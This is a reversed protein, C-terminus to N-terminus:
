SSLDSPYIASASGKSFRGTFPLVEFAIRKAQDLSLSKGRMALRETINSPSPQLMDNLLDVVCDNIETLSVDSPLIKDDIASLILKNFQDENACNSGEESLIYHQSPKIVLDAKILFGLYDDIRSSSVFRGDENSLIFSSQTGIANMLEARNLPADKLLNLIEFVRGYITRSSAFKNRGTPVLAPAARLIDQSLEGFIHPLSQEDLGDLQMMRARTVEYVRKFTIAEKSRDVRQDARHPERQLVEILRNSFNADFSYSTGSSTILLCEGQFNAVTEGTRGAHCTDLFLVLNKIGHQTLTQLIYNLSVFKPSGRPNEQLSIKLDNQEHSISHGIFYIIVTTDATYDDDPDEILHIIDSFRPNILLDSEDNKNRISSFPYGGQSSFLDKLKKVTGKVRNPNPKVGTHWSGIILARRDM